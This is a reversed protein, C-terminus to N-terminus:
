ETEKHAGEKKVKVDGEKDEKEVKLLVERKEGMMEVQSRARKLFSEVSSESVVTPVPESATAPM